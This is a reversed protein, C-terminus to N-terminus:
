ALQFVPVAMMEMPKIQKNQAATFLQELSRAVHAQFFRHGNECERVAVGRVVVLHGNHWDSYDITIDALRNGCIACVSQQKKM